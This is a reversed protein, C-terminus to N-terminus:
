HIALLNNAAGFTHVGISVKMAIRWFRGQPHEESDRHCAYLFLSQVPVSTGWLRAPSPHRGFIPNLESAGGAVGIETSVMDAGWAMTSLVALKEFGTHKHTPTQARRVDWTHDEHFLSPSSLAPVPPVRTSPSQAAAQLVLAAPILALIVVTTPSMPAMTPRAPDLTQSMRGAAKHFDRLWGLLPVGDSLLDAVSL